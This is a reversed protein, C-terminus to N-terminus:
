CTQNWRHLHNKGIKEYLGPPLQQKLLFEMSRSTALQFLIGIEEFSFGEKKLPVHQDCYLEGDHFYFLTLPRQCTSCTDSFRLLGEHQLIKLQFSAALALPDSANPIRNLYRLLLQYLEPDPKCPLQTSEVLKLLDCAATLSSFHNRLNLHRNRISLEQCRFLESKRQFLIWEAQVLPELFIKSKPRNAGLVITKILGYDATFLTVIQDYDRFHITQLIIGETRFPQM